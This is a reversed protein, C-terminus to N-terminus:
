ERRREKKEKIEKKLQELNESRQVKKSKTMAYIRARYVVNGIEQRHTHLCITQLPTFTLVSFGWKANDSNNNYVTGM